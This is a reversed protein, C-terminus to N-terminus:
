VLYVGAGLCTEFSDLLARLHVPAAWVADGAAIGKVMRRLPTSLDDGEYFRPPWAKNPANAATWGDFDPFLSEASYSFIANWSDNIDQKLEPSVAILPFRSYKRLQELRRRQARCLGM